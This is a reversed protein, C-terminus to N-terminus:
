GRPTHLDRSSAAKLRTTLQPRARSKTLSQELPMYARNVTDGKKLEPM